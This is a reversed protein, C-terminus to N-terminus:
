QADLREEVLRVGLRGRLGVCEVQELLVAGRVLLLDLVNDLLIGRWLHHGFVRLRNDLGRGQREIDLMINGRVVPEPALRLELDRHLTHRLKLALAPLDEPADIHAIPHHM